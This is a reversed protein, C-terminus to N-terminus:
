LWRLWGPPSEVSFVVPGSPADELPGALVRGDPLHIELDYHSVGGVAAHARDRIHAFDLMLENSQGPWPRVIVVPILGRAPSVGFPPQGHHSTLQDLAWSLQGARRTSLEGKIVADAVGVAVRCFASQEGGILAKPAPKNPRPAGGIDGTSQDVTLRRHALADRLEATSAYIKMIRSWFTLDATSPRCPRSAGV